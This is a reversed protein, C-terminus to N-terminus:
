SPLLCQMITVDVWTDDVNGIEKQTGVVEFGFKRHMAISSANAAWIKVVIHHFGAAAAADLLAAQLRSGLGRGTESRRLFLSTECARAYGPRDSYFKVIGWGQLMGKELLVLLSEREHLRQLWEEVYG